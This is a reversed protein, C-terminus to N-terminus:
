GKQLKLSHAYLLSILTEDNSKQIEAKKIVKISRGVLHLLGWGDPLDEVSIIDPPSLYYRWDGVGSFPKKRFIKNKDSLFDSRTAKCEILCSGCSVVGIADPIESSSNVQEIMVVGFAPKFFRENFSDYLKECSIGRKLWNGAKICLDNHTIM